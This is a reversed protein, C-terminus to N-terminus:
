LTLMVKTLLFDAALVVLAGAVVARTTAKGVGETGG